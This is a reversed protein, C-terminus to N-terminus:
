GQAPRAASLARTLEDRGSIGLRTYILRTYSRATAPKLDLDLAAQDLTVRLALRAALEMQRLPMDLRACTRLAILDRPVSRRVGVLARPGDRGDITGIRQASVEFSGFTGHAEVTAIDESGESLVKQVVCSAMRLGIVGGQRGGGGAMRLFQDARPTMDRPDGLAGFLIYAAGDPACDGVERTAPAAAATLHPLM